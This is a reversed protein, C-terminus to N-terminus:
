SSIAVSYRSGNPQKWWGNPSFVIWSIMVFSKANEDMRFPTACVVATYFDPQTTQPWQVVDSFVKTRQFASFIDLVHMKAPKRQFQIRTKRGKRSGLIKWDSRWWAADHWTRPITCSSCASDTTPCASDSAQRLPRSNPCLRRSIRRPRHNKVQPYIQGQPYIEYELASLKSFWLNCCTYIKTFWESSYPNTLKM